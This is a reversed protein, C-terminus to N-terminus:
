HFFAALHKIKSIFLPEGELAIIGLREREGRPGGRGHAQGLKSERAKFGKNVWGLQLDRALEHANDPGIAATFGIDDIRNSPNQTLGPRGLKAALVHM